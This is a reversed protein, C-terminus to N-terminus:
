VCIIYERATHQQGSLLLINHRAYYTNHRVKLVNVVECYINGPIATHVVYERDSEMRWEGGDHM